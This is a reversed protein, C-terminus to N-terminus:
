AAVRALQRHYVALTGQAMAAVSYRAARSRAATGRASRQTPHQMLDTVAAAFGSADDPDVFTAADQWLERFTPMDSLVLACGSQAAELVSLGFPEYRAASVYIPSAALHHAIQDPSLWGLSRIHDFRVHEGNPGCSSGAASVPWAMLGAMRDLVALNKGEDWLRGSTFVADSCEINASSPSSARGNPVVHPQVAAGYVATTAAAFAQSPAILADAGAYGAAVRDRQWALQPPLPGSRVARWWTGVCSHCTVVVPADYRGSVLLGGSHLHIIDAGVALRRVAAATAQAAADDAATWDLDLGTVVLSLGAIDAQRLQAPNPDPGLVALTVTAGDACFARALDTTYSWVGGVADTTMFVRLGSAM